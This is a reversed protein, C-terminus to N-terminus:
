GYEDRAWGKKEKKGCDIKRSSRTHQSLNNTKHPQLLFPFHDHRTASIFAPLPLFILPKAPLLPSPPSPKPWSVIPLPSVIIPLNRRTERCLNTHFQIQLWNPTHPNRFTQGSRTTRHGSRTKHHNLNNNSHINSSSLFYHHHAASFFIPSPSLIHSKAPL